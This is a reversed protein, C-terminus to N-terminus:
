GGGAVKPYCTEQDFSNVIANELLYSNELIKFGLSPVESISSCPFGMVGVGGDVWTGSYV